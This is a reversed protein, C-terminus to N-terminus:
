SRNQEERKVQSQLPAIVLQIQLPLETDQQGSILMLRAEPLLWCAGLDGYQEQTFPSQSVIGSFVPSDLRTSLEDILATYQDALETDAADFEEEDLNEVEISKLLSTLQLGRDSNESSLHLRLGNLFWIEEDDSAEAPESKEAGIQTLYDNLTTQTWPGKFSLLNALILEIDM